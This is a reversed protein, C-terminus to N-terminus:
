NQSSDGWSRKPFTLPTLLSFHKEENYSSVGQEKPSVLSLVLAPKQGVSVYAAHVLCHTVGCSGEHLQIRYIQFKFAGSLSWIISSLINGRKLVM